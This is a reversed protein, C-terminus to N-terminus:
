EMGGQLARILDGALLVRGDWGAVRGAEPEPRRVVRVETKRSISHALTQLAETYDATGRPITLLEAVSVSRESQVTGVWLPQGTEELRFRTPWLRMVVRQRGQNLVM